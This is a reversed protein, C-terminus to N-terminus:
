DNDDASLIRLIRNFEKTIYERGQPGKWDIETTHVGDNFGVRVDEMILDKIEAFTQSSLEEGKSKTIKESFNQVLHQFIYMGFYQDLLYTMMKPDLIKDINKDFEDVKDSIINELLEIVHMEAKRAATDDLGGMYDSSIQAILKIIDKCTKNDTTENHETLWNSLGKTQIDQLNGAFNGLWSVGSRGIAYSKGNAVTSRGGAAKVMNGVARHYNSKVRNNVRSLAKIYQKQPMNSSNEELKNGDEVAKATSTVSQSAKGWNPEGFVSAKHRHSTGM